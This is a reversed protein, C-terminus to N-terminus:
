KLSKCRKFSIRRQPGAFVEGWRNKRTLREIDREIADVQRSSLSIKKDLEMARIALCDAQQEDRINLAKEGGSVVRHRQQIHACQRRYLWIQTDRSLYYLEPNIVIIYESKNNRREERPLRQAEAFVPLSSDYRTPIQRGDPDQCRERIQPAGAQVYSFTFIVLLVVGFLLGFLYFFKEKHSEM